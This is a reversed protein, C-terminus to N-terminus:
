NYNYMGEPAKLALGLEFMDIGNLTRWAFHHSDLWEAIDEIDNEYVMQYVTRNFQASYIGNLIGESCEDYYFKYHEMLDKKEEETMSSMPRLYPKVEEILPAVGEVHSMFPNALLSVRGAGYGFLTYTNGKYEVKLDIWYNARSLLDSTLLKRKEELKLIM